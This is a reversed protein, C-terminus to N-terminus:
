STKMETPMGIANAMTTRYQLRQRLFIVTAETLLLQGAHTEAENTAV